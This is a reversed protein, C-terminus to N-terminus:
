GCDRAPPNAVQRALETLFDAQEPILLEGVEDLDLENAHRRLSDVCAGLLLVMSEADFDPAGTWCTWERLALELETPSRFTRPIRATM